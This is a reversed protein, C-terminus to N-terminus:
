MAGFMTALFRLRALMQCLCAQLCKLRLPKALVMLGVLGYFSGAPISLSLNDVAVKKGFTKVFGRISVAQVEESDAAYTNAGFVPISGASASESASGAPNAYPVSDVM